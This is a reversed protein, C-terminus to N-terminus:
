LALETIELSIKIGKILIENKSLWKIVKVKHCFDIFGLHYLKPNTLETGFVSEVMSNAKKRNLTHRLTAVVTDM